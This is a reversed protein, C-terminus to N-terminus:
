YHFGLIEYELVKSSILFTNQTGIEFLMSIYMQLLDM